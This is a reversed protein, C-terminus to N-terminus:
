SVRGPSYLTISRAWGNEGACVFLLFFDISSCRSVAARTLLQAPLAAVAGDTVAAGANAGQAAPCGPQTDGLVAQALQRSCCGVNTFGWPFCPESTSSFRKSLILPDSAPTAAQGCPEDRGSGRSSVGPEGGLVECGGPFSLAAFHLALALFCSPFPTSIICGQM